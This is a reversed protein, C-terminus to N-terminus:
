IDAWKPATLMELTKDYQEYKASILSGTQHLQQCDQDQDRGPDAAHLAEPPLAGCAVVTSEQVKRGDAWVDGKGGGPRGWGVQGDVRVGFQPLLLPLLLQHKKPNSVNGQNHCTM